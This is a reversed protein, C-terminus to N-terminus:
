ICCGVNSGCENSSAYTGGIRQCQNRTKCVGRGSRCCLGHVLSKECHFSLVLLLVVVLVATPKM